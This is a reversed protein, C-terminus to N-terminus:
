KVEFKYSAANAEDSLSAYYIGAPWANVFVMIEESDARMPYKFLEKGSASRIYFNAGAAGQLHVKLHSDVLGPNGLIKFRKAETPLITYSVRSHTTHGEANVHRIRYFIRPTKVKPLATDLYSNSPSGQGRLQGEMVIDALRGFHEGDISREIIITGVKLDERSEWDLRVIGNIYNVQLDITEPETDTGTKANLGLPSIVVLWLLSFFLRRSKYM